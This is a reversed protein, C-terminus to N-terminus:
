SRTDYDDEDLELDDDDLETEASLAASTRLDALGELDKGSPKRRKGLYVSPLAKSYRAGGKMGRNYTNIIAEAFQLASKGGHLQQMLKAQQILSGISPAHRQLKNRLLEVDLFEAFESYVLALGAIVRGDYENYVDHLIELAFRLAAPGNAGSSYVADAQGIAMFGKPPGTPVGIEQLMAQIALAQEEGAVLRSKYKDWANVADRTNLQLFLLAEEERSLGYHVEAPVKGTWEVIRIAEQRQQGDLLYWADGLEGTEQDEELRVSVVLTGLAAPNFDRVIRNVDRQVISRQITTDVRLTSPDVLRLEVRHNPNTSKFAGSIDLSRGRQATAARAVAATAAATNKTSVYKAM